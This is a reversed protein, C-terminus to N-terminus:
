LLCKWNLHRLSPITIVREDKRPSFSPNMVEFVTRRDSSAAEMMATAAQLLPAALLLVTVDTVVVVVPFEVAAVSGVALASDAAGAEIACSADTAVTSEFPAIVITRLPLPSHVQM